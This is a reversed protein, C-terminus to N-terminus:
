VSALIECFSRLSPVQASDFRGGCLVLSAKVAYRARHNCAEQSSVEECRYGYTEFLTKYFATFNRTGAWRHLLRSFRTIDDPTFKKVQTELNHFGAGAITYALLKRTTNSDIRPIHKKVDRWILARNLADLASKSHPNRCFSYRSKEPLHLSDSVSAAEELVYRILLPQPNNIRFNAHFM